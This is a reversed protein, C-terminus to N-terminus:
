GARRRNIEETAALHEATLKFAPMQTPGGLTCGLAYLEDALRTDGHDRAFDEARRITELASTMASAGVM